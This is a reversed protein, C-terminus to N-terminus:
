SYGNCKGTNQGYFLKWTIISFNVLIISTHIGSKLIKWQIEMLIQKIQAKASRQESSKIKKMLVYPLLPTLVTLQKM